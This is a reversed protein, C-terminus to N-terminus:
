FPPPTLGLLPGYLNISQLPLMPFRRRWFTLRQNVWSSALRAYPLCRNGHPPGRLIQGCPWIEAHCDTPLSRQGAAALRELADSVSVRVQALEAESVEAHGEGNSLDHSPSAM